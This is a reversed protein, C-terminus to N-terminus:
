GLADGGTASTTAGWRGGSSMESAAACSSDRNTGPAREWRM